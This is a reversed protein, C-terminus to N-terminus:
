KKFGRVMKVLEKVVEPKTELDPNATMMPSLGVALGGKVIVKALHEDTVKAQWDADGFSRPKPTLAVAAPGDGAGSMGHCTTCRTAFIKKADAAADGAAAVPAKEAPKAAAKAPKSTAAKTTKAPAKAEKKDGTCAATLGLAALMAFSLTIRRM